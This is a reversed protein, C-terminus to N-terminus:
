LNGNQQNRPNFALAGMAKLQWVKTQVYIFKSSVYKVSAKKHNHTKYKMM